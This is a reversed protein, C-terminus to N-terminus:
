MFFSFRPEIRYDQGEPIYKLISGVQRAAHLTIPERGDFQTNNWNMKSLGLIEQALARPTEVTEECRVLLPLPVYQGPYTEFFDVSGRTYLALTRQDLHLLTGRLPPYEGCRFLRSHCDGLSVLDYDEIRNQAASELFGEVEEHSYSSSKHLVVRAPFNRHVERYRELAQNLLKRADERTLHPQRDEKSVKAAGGRVVVGEGRQNFVQAISTMVQSLDLTNYFSIGVFCATLQSDDRILKWPVGGAKYYLATYLNWAITAQDQIEKARGPRSKQRRKITTDYTTPLIIQVPKRLGMAEAKLLHHFNLRSGLGDSDDSRGSSHMAELLSLPLACVLVDPNANEALYRFESLFISVAEEVLANGKTRKALRDLVGQPIQRQLQTDLVLSCRFSLDPGIGPFAPFLNPQKSPKAPFGRASREFWSLLGEITQPTGAIGVKIQKPALANEFDLPGYHWLGFRVDLHRGAGFQLEPEQLLEIKM